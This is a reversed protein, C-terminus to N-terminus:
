DSIATDPVGDQAFRALAGGDFGADMLMQSLRSHELAGGQFGRVLTSHEVGVMRAVGRITSRGVGKADVTLESVIM